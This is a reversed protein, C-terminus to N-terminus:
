MCLRNLCKNSTNQKIEQENEKSSLNIDSLQIDNEQIQNPPILSEDFSQHPQPIRTSVKHLIYCFLIHGITTIINFTLTLSRGLEVQSEDQTM